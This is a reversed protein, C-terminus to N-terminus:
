ASLYPKILGLELLNFIFILFSVSERPQEIGKKEGLQWLLKIPVSM